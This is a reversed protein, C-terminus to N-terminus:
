AADEPGPELLCVFLNPRVLHNNQPSLPDLYSIRCGFRNISYCAQKGYNSLLLQADREADRKSHATLLVPTTTATNSPPQFISDLTPKWSEKLHAHGLGPNLLVLLDYNRRKADDLNHFLGKHKWRLSLQFNQFSLDLNPHVIMDPGCFDVNLNNQHLWLLENWFIQPLNAEMRAGILCITQTEKDRPLFQILTLPVSLVHTSLAKGNPHPFTWNRAKWYTEFDDFELPRQLKPFPPVQLCAQAVKPNSEAWSLIPDRWARTSVLRATQTRAAVQIRM